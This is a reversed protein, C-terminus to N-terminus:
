EGKTQRMLSRTIERQADRKAIDDRKDYNKKGKCLGLKLKVRGSKLYIDLPILTLGKIAVAQDLRRIEAKHMLLRKVRLPDTNFINGNEYPSIHMGYVLLEGHEIAAYSDKLNCKGGRISKVETGRLEIGAEFTEEIFYDHRAKRNQALIKLETDPM